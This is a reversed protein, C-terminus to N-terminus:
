QRMQAVTCTVSSFQEQDSKFQQCEQTSGQEFVCM